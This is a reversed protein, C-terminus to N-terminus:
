KRIWSGSYCENTGHGRLSEDNQVSYDDNTVIM